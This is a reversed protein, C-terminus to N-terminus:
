VYVRPVEVGLLKRLLKIYRTVGDSLKYEPKINLVQQNKRKRM